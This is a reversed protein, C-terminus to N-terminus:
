FEVFEDLEVGIHIDAPHAAVRLLESTPWSGRPTDVVHVMEWLARVLTPDM